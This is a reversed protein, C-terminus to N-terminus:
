THSCSHLMKSSLPASLFAFYRTEFASHPNRFASHFRLEANRMKPRTRANRQLRVEWTRLREATPIKRTIGLGKCKTSTASEDCGFISIAWGVIDRSSARDDFTPIPFLCPPCVNAILWMANAGSNYTPAMSGPPCSIQLANNPCQRM